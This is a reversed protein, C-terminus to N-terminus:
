SNNKKWIEIEKHNGSLLTPPVKLMKGNVTFEEPKTYIPYQKTTDDEYFSDIKFSDSNGLVGEQLRVISDTIVLAALEGGTLIFNGISIQLDVLEDLIRQDFGAYHGCLIIIHDKKSLEKATSQKYLEGKATTAIVISNKTKLKNIIKYVPEIMIVMGPGGGYPTDDVKGYENVAFERLNHINIDVANKELARKIISENLYSQFSDPFLSVLDIKM